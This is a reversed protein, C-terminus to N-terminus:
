PGSPPGLCRCRLLLPQLGGISCPQLSRRCVDLLQFGLYAKLAPGSPGVGVALGVALGVAM